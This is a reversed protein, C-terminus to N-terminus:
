QKLKKNQRIREKLAVYREVGPTHGIKCGYLIKGNQTEVIRRVEGKLNLTDPFTEGMEPDNYTLSFNKVNRYDKPLNVKDFVLAFGVASLNKFICYNPTVNNDAKAKVTKGIFCRYNHRRNYKVSLKNRLEMRYYCRSGIRCIVPNVYQFVQPTQGKLEIILFNSVKGINVIKGEYYIVDTYVCKKTIKQIYVTSELKNNKRVSLITCKMGEKLDKITM